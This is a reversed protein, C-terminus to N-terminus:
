WLMLVCYGNTNDNLIVCYQRDNTMPWQNDNANDNIIAVIAMLWVNLLNDNGNTMYTM